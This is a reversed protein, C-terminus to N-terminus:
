IKEIFEAMQAVFIKGFMDLPSVHGKLPRSDRKKSGRRM